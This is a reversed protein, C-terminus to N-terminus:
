VAKDVAKNKQKKVQVILLPIRAKAQKRGENMKGVKAGAQFVAFEVAQWIKYRMFLRYALISNQPYLFRDKKLIFNVYKISLYFGNKKTIQPLIENIKGYDFIYIKYIESRYKELNSRAAGDAVYLTNM